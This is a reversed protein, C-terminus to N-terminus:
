TNGGLLAISSDILRQQADDGIGSRLESEAKQLAMAVVRQRLEAFARERETDLDRAATEKMREVEEAARALIAERVSRANEEAAKRIQQAEAQAQTLKQQADSLQAAAEKARQEAERIATEINSRRESLTNSIVKRGFYFLVGILIALNIINTELINFNLGFGGPSEAEAAETALLLVSGVIGM